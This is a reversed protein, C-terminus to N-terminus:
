ECYSISKYFTFVLQIKGKKSHNKLFDHCQNCKRIELLNDIHCFGQENYSLKLLVWFFIRIQYFGLIRVCGFFSIEIDKKMESFLVFLFNILGKGNYEKNEKDFINALM